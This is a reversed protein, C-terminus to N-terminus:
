FGGQDVSPKPGRKAPKSSAGPRVSWVLSFAVTGLPRGISEAARLADFLDDEPETALLDAFGSFSRPDPNRHCHM